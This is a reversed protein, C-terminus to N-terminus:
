CLLHRMERVIMNRRHMSRIKKERKNEITTKKEKEALLEYMYALEGPDPRSRTSMSLQRQQISDEIM